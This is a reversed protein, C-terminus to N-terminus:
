SIAPPWTIVWTRIPLEPRMTVQQGTTLHETQKLGLATEWSFQQTHLIAPSHELGQPRCRSEEVLPELCCRKRGSISQIGSSRSSWTIWAVSCTVRHGSGHPAREGEPGWEFDAAKQTVLYVPWITLGLSPIHLRWFGFPRLSSSM